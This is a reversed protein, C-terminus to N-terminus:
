AARGQNLSVTGSQENVAAGVEALLHHVLRETTNVAYEDGM